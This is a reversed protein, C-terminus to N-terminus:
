NGTVGLSAIRQLLERKQQWLRDIDVGGALEPLHDFERQLAAVEREFRLRKLARACAMAAAPAGPDAAIGTALRAEESNLRALLAAPSPEGGIAHVSLAEELIHETALGDLDAREVDFLAEAAEDPRNILAWILGREAPKIQGFTPVHQPSVETRREVAAKRIEARVVSETIKARHAITDAFQDRVAVDPIRAAVALM